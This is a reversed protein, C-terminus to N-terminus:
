ESKSYFTIVFGYIYLCFLDQFVLVVVFGLSFGNVGQKVANLREARYHEASHM